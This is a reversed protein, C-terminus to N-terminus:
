KVTIVVRGRTPDGGSVAAAFARFPELYPKIDAAWRQYEDAPMQAAWTEIASRLDVYLQGANSAGAHDMADRYAQQDALASGSKTDLVAKVFADGIGAIVLDGKQAVAIQFHQGAFLAGLNPVGSTTGPLQEGSGTFRSVDGADIVTITTGNYTEEALTIGASSGVLSVLNKLQLLKTEAVTADKAQVVIGATLDSPGGTRVVALSGDGMWGVLANIGGLAQLAQDLPNPQGEASASPSASPEASAGASPQAAAGSTARLSTLAIAIVNGLDHVELAALTTAPLKTALVSTHSSTVAALNTQPLAVTVNLWDTEARVSLAVWAPLQDPTLSGASASPSALAAAEGFARLDLYGFALRDGPVAAAAAKFSASDGFPSGGKTDIAAHVSAPDGVLLVNQLVGLALTTGNRDYTTIAVGAYTESGTGPGLVNDAWSRAAAADKVSVLLLGESPTVAAGPGPSTAAAAAAAMDPVHPLVVALSDGLWGKINGTFTQSGNTASGVLQDLAEDLKRDIISQDAFGPFHSIFSAANQRQDGPADMRVELYGVTGAPVYSVLTSTAAGASLIMFAAVSVVLVGLTVIGAIAWRARSGRPPRARTM